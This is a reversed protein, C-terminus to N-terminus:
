PILSMTPFHYVSCSIHVTLYTKMDLCRSLQDWFLRSDLGFNCITLVTFTTKMDQPTPPPESLSPSSGCEQPSHLSWVNSSTPFVFAVDISNLYMRLLSGPRLLEDIAENVPVRCAPFSWIKLTNSLMHFPGGSPSCGDLLSFCPVFLAEAIVAAKLRCDTEALRYDPVSPM